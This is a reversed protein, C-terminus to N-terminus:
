WITLFPGMQMSSCPNPNFNVHPPAILMVGGFLPWNGSTFFYSSIQTRPLFQYTDVYSNLLIQPNSARMFIYDQVTVAAVVGLM